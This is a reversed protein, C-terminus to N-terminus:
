KREIMRIADLAAQALHPDKDHRARELAPLASRDRISGLATAAQRRVEGDDDSGLLKNLTPVARTAASGNVGLARAAHARVFGSKDSLSTMLAAVADADAHDGLSVAAAGRVESDKDELAGILAATRDIGRFKGLAYAAMKRVFADKDKSLCAALHPVAAVEGREAIAAAAAARVRPSRDTLASLLASTAATGEVRALEMVAERRKEQDSSNLQAFWRSDEAGIERSSQPNLQAQSPITHPLSSGATRTFLTLVFLGAAFRTQQAVTGM